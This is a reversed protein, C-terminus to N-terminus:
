DGFVGSVDGTDDLRGRRDDDDGSNAINGQDDYIDEKILWVHDHRALELYTFFIRTPGTQVLFGHRYKGAVVGRKHKYITADQMGEMSVDSVRVAQGISLGDRIREIMDPTIALSRDAKGYNTSSATVLLDHYRNQRFIRRGGAGGFLGFM